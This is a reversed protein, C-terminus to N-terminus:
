CFCCNLLTQDTLHFFLRIKLKTETTQHYQYLNRTQFPVTMFSTDISPQENVKELM